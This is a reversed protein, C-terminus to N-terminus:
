AEVHSRQGALLAEFSALQNPSLRAAFNALQEPSMARAKRQHARFRREAECAEALSAPLEPPSPPLHAPDQGGFLASAAYLIPWGSPIDRAHGLFDEHLWDGLRAIPTASAPDMRWRSDMLYMMSRFEPSQGIRDMYIAAWMGDTDPAQLLSCIREEPQIILDFRKRAADGSLTIVQVLQEPSGLLQSPTTVFLKDTNGSRTRVWSAAVSMLKNDKSLWGIAGANGFSVGVKHFPGDPLNPRRNSVSGGGGSGGASATQQTATVAATNVGPINPTNQM